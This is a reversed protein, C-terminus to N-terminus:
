ATRVRFHSGDFGTSSALGGFRADVTTCRGSASRRAASMSAASSSPRNNPVNTRIITQV